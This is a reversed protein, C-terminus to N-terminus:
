PSDTKTPASRRCKWLNFHRSSDVREYAARFAAVFAPPFLRVRDYEGMNRMSFPIEGRPIVFCDSRCSRVAEVTARSPGRGVSRLDMLTAPDLWYPNGALVLPVRHTTLMYTRNGAYGMQVSGRECRAALASLDDSVANGPGRADIMQYVTWQGSFGTFFVCIAGAAFTAAVLQPARERVARGTRFTADLLVPFLPMYHHATSGPKSSVIAILSSSLLAAWAYAKQSRSLRAADRHDALLILALPLGYFIGLELNGAFRASSIGQRAVLALGALHHALSVNPLAFPAAAVLVAGAAVAGTRVAGQELAFRVLIPVFYVASTIKLDIAIGLSVALLVSAGRVRREALSLAFVGAATSLVLHPDARNWYSFHLFHALALGLLAAMWLGSRRTPASGAMLLLALLLCIPGGAKLAQVSPGFWANFAGNIVYLMPGFTIQIYAEAADLAPYLPEGRWFTATVAAVSAECHDLFSRLRLYRSAQALLLV